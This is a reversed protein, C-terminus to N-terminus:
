RSSGCVGECTQIVVGTEFFHNIQDQGDEDRRPNEHPDTEDDPPTNTYPEKLGYEYEVLASGEWSDKVTELGWVERATPSLMRAEYSRAMVEAGLTTVQADGIAVQLLIEKDSSGELPDRTLAPAYGAAEAPDWLSQMLALWLSVEAPDPYMTKFVLFFPEFDFSRTLLLHYPTGGVGLTAREIDPSLALYGGGLIAGQSNGYYYRRDTDVLSHSKGTETDTHQLLPEDALPGMALRMLWLKQMFGQLSREPIISFRDLQDVLMLTIDPVDDESMGTWDSAILIWGYRDAMESLYSAHVEGQSGLLGHGYQVIAAPEGSEVVSNPVVVTFSVTTEGNYFPQGSEDRTLITGADDEETYLPASFEGHIRFATSDNPNEEVSVISYGPDTSEFRSLTDDRLWQARGTIGDRSGTVFDWALTIESRNWGEAELAPFIVEDYVSRRHEVDYDTTSSGDRLSAFANSSDILQGQSDVLSRLGVVYRHGYEMPSVPRIMLTSRDGDEISVDREIFHPVREGTEVDVVISLSEDAISGGIDDHGSLGELSLDEFHALMPTLVSWGDLENFFAPSNQYDNANAPLADDALTVRWGSGTSSDEVM